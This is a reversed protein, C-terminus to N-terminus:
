PPVQDQLQVTFHAFMLLFQVTMQAGLSGKIHKPPILSSKTYVAENLLFAIGSLLFIAILIGVLPWSTVQSSQGVMTVLLLFSTLLVAFAALSTWNLQQSAAPPRDCDDVNRHEEKRQVGRKTISLWTTFSCCVFAVPAQGIFSMDSM